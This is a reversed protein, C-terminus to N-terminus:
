RESFFAIGAGFLIQACVTMMGFWFGMKYGSAYVMNREIEAQEVRHKEALAEVTPLSTILHHIYHDYWMAAVFGLLSLILLPIGIKWRHKQWFKMRGILKADSISKRKM